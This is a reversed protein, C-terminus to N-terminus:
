SIQVYSCGTRGTSGAASPWRSASVRVHAIVLETFLFRSGKFNSPIHPSMGSGPPQDGRTFSARPMGDRLLQDRIIRHHVPYGGIGPYYAPGSWSSGASSSGSGPLSQSPARQRIKKVPNKNM